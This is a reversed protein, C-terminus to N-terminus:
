SNKIEAALAEVVAVDVKYVKALTDLPLDAKIGGTVAIKQEDTLQNGVSKSKKKAPASKVTATEQKSRAVDLHPNYGEIGVTPPLETGAERARYRAVAHKAVATSDPYGPVSLEYLAVSLGRANGRAENFKVLEELNMSDKTGVNDMVYGTANDLYKWIKEIITMDIREPLPPLPERPEHSKGLPCTNAQHRVRTENAHGQTPHATSWGCNKAGCQFIWPRRACEEQNNFKSEPRPYVEPWNETM